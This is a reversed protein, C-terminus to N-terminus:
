ESRKKDKKDKKTPKPPPPPPSPPPAEEEEEDEAPVDEDDGAASSADFDGSGDDYGTIHTDSDDDEEAAEVVEAAEAAKKGKRPKKEKPVPKEGGKWIPKMTKAWKGGFTQSCALREEPVFEGDVIEGVCGHWKNTFGAAFNRKQTLHSKCLGEQSCAKTCQDETYVAPKFRPDKDRLIRACCRAPDFSEPKFMYDEEDPRPDDPSPVAAPKRGPVKKFRKLGENFLQVDAEEAYYRLFSIFARFKVIEAATPAPPLVEAVAAPAAPAAPAAAVAKKTTAVPAVLAVPAVPAVPVVKKSVKTSSM